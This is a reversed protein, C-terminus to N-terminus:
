ATGDGTEGKEILRLTAHLTTLYYYFMWSYWIPKDYQTKQRQNHHRIGFNNAINFLDQEDESKLVDKLKPRLFELVDALERIAGRRDEWTARHRRWKTCAAQIRQEVNEPDPTPIAAEFLGELGTEALALVEGGASLEFGSKYVELIRNVKERFEVQGAKEDFEECHWGCENWSHYERKTPRACHDHLFEIMDFLDDESYKEISSHIPTLNTKRLALLIAGELDHGLEGPIYGADVCEYGLHKQFYGEEEFHSYISKFLRQLMKLDIEASMPNIGTRISYYPRRMTM